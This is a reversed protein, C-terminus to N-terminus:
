FIRVSFQDSQLGTVRGRTPVVCVPSGSTMSEDEKRSSSRDAEYSSSAKVHNCAKRVAAHSASVRNATNIYGSNQQQNQYCDASCSYLYWLREQIEDIRDIHISETLSTVNTQLMTIVDNRIEEYTELIEYNEAECENEDMLITDYIANFLCAIAVNQRQDTILSYDYVVLESYYTSRDYINTIMQTEFTMDTDYEILSTGKMHKKVVAVVKHMPLICQYQCLFTQATPPNMKYNLTSLIIREMQIIHTTTFENRSLEVLTLVSLQKNHFVKTAIYLCTMSALKFATRDCRTSDNFRDLYSFAIAVIERSTQFYDCIRYSWECMKERCSEDVDLLSEDTTNDIEEVNTQSFSTVPSGGDVKTPLIDYDNYDVSESHDNEEEYNHNLLREKQRNSRRGIYDRVLYTTTDQKTLANLEDFVMESSITTTTSDNQCAMELCRKMHVTDNSKKMSICLLPTPTSAENYSAM